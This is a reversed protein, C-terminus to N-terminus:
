IKIKMNNKKHLTKQKFNETHNISSIAMHYLMDKLDSTMAENDNNFEIDTLRPLHKAFYINNNASEVLTSALAKPYGFKSNIELFVNGIKKCLAKYSLFFGYANEDDVLKHHYAKAGERVVIRHLVEEDIFPADANNSSSDVLTKIVKKLKILPDDINMLNIDIRTSMWEWYWNLIYIFLYHKNEFYRYISSETSSIATALKRFSFEELGLEDLLLIGHELIKNGLSTTTPDKLYIKPNINLTIHIKKMM